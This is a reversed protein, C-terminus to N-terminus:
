SEDQSYDEEYENRIRKEHADKILRAIREGTNRDVKDILNNQNFQQNITVAAGKQVDLGFIKMMRDLTELWQKHFVAADKTNHFSGMGNCQSCIVSNGEDDYIVRSGNCSPCVTPVKYMDFLKKVEAEAELLKLYIESRRKGVEEPTLDAKQLEELLKQSNKVTLIPIGMEEAIQNDTMGQENYEQIKAVRRLREADTIM